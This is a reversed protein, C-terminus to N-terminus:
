QTHTGQALQTEQIQKQITANSEVIATRTKYIPVEHNTFSGPIQLVILFGWLLIVILLSVIFIIIHRPRLNFKSM